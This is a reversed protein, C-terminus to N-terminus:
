QSLNAPFRLIYVNLMCFLGALMFRIQFEGARSSWDVSPGGGISSSSSSHIHLRRVLFFALALPPSSIVIPFFIFQFTVRRTLPSFVLLLLLSVLFFSSCESSIFSFRDRSHPFLTYPTYVRCVNIRALNTSLIYHEEFQM